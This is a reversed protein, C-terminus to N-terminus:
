LRNIISKQYFIGIKNSLSDVYKNVSDTYIDTRKGTRYQETGFNAIKRSTFYAFRSLDRDTAAFIGKDVAWQKIIHYFGKPVRGGARGEELINFYPVGILKYTDGERVIEIERKAKGSATKGTADINQQIEAKLAQLSDLIVKEIGEM